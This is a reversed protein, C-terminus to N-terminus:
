DTAVWPTAPLPGPPPRQRATAESCSRETGALGACSSSRKSVSRNQFLDTKFCIAKSASGNQFQGPEKHRYLGNRLACLAGNGKACQKYSLALRHGGEPVRRKRWVRCAGALRTQNKKDPRPM